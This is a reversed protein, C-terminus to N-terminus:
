FTIEEQVLIPRRLGALVPLLNERLNAKTVGQMVVPAKGSGLSPEVMISQGKGTDKYVTVRMDTEKQPLLKQHYPDRGRSGGIV